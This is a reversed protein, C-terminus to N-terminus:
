PALVPRSGQAEREQRNVAQVTVFAMVFFWSCFVTLPIWWVFLGNWAFPGDKFFYLLTGPIFLLGVWFNYYAVWRPWVIGEKDQLACIGVVFCQVLVASYTGVLMIWGIDHIALLADPNRDVRFAAAELIMVPLAFAVWGLTGVGLQTFALPSAPGEIRRMQVTLAAVFPVTFAAAVMTIALGLRKGNTNEGYFAVVETASLSPSPPPLFGGIIVFGITFLVMALPAMWLCIRQTRYSMLSELAPRAVVDPDSGRM